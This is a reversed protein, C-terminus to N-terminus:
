VLMWRCDCDADDAVVWVKSPDDVPLHIANKPDLRMGTDVTVNEGGVYVFSDSLNRILIGRAASIRNLVVNGTTLALPVPSLGVMIRGFKLDSAQSTERYIDTM